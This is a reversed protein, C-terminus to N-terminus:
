TWEQPLSPGAIVDLHVGDPNLLLISALTNQRQEEIILCLANLIEKLSIGTAIMELVRKEGALLAEAWKRDTIDTVAGVFESHRAQDTSPRGVVQLYKISGDPMLLRHELAFETRDRSAREIVQQVAQRDDPHTRQVILETTIETKPELEFIRFTEDSWYIEGASVDWGFSGTHSLKQAEALYAERRRLEQATNEQESIDLTNGILRVVKGN